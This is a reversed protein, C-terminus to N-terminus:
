PIKKGRKLFTDSSSRTEREYREMDKRKSKNTIGCSRLWVQESAVNLFSDTIYLFCFNHILLFQKVLRTKASIQIKECFEKGASSKRVM